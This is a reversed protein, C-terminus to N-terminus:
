LDHWVHLSDNVANVRHQYLVVDSTGSMCVAIIRCLTALAHVFSTFFILM